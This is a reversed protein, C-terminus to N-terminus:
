IRNSNAKQSGIKCKAMQGGELNLKAKLTPTNAWEMKSGTPGCAMTSEEMKGNTSEMAMSKIMITSVRTLEAMLGLSCASDKWKIILGTAKTNHNTQGFINEKDRSIEMRSNDKMFQSTTGVSSVRATSWAKTTSVRMRLDTRNSKKAREVRSIMPGNGKMCQEMQNQWSGLDMASIKTGIERMYRAMRMRWSVMDLSLLILGNARLSPSIQSSKGGREMCRGQQSKGNDLTIRGM